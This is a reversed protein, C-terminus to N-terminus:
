LLQNVNLRLYEVKCGVNAPTAILGSIIGM